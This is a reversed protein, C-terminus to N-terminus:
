IMASPKRLVGAAAGIVCLGSIATWLFFGDPWYSMAIHNTGPGLLLGRFAGNTMYLPAPKGNVTATWGPYFAESSALFAPGGATATLDIRSPSYHDVKM